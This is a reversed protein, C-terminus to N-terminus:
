ESPLCFPLLQSHRGDWGSWNEPPLLMGSTSKHFDLIWINGLVQTELIHNGELKKGFYYGKFLVQAKGQKRLKEVKEVFVWLRNDVSYFNEAARKPARARTNRTNPM